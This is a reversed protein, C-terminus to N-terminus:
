AIADLGLETWITGPQDPTESSLPEHLEDTEAFAQRSAQEGSGDQSGSQGDFDFAGQNGDSPHQHQIHVREVDIGKTRLLQTLEDSGARLLDSAESSQTTLRVSLQDGTRKIEIKLEGLREPTLRLTMEGSASRMLSALGRQVQAIVKSQLAQQGENIPRPSQAARASPSDIGGQNGGADVGTVARSTLAGDVRANLDGRILSQLSQARLPEVSPKNAQTLSAAEARATRNQQVDVRAQETPAEKAPQLNAGPVTPTRKSEGTSKESDPPTDSLADSPNHIANAQARGANTVSPQIQDPSAEPRPGQGQSTTSDQTDGLRTQVAITTSDPSADARIARVLGRISLKAQDSRNQLPDLGTEVRSTQKQQDPHASSAEQIATSTQATAAQGQQESADQPQADTAADVGPQLQSGDSKGASQTQREAGDATSDANDSDDGSSATGQADEEGRDDIADPDGDSVPTADPEEISEALASPEDRDFARLVQAFGPADAASRQRLIPTAARQTTQDSTTPIANNLTSM